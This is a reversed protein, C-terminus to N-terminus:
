RSFFVWGLLAALMVMRMWFFQTPKKKKFAHWGWALAGMAAFLLLVSLVAEPIDLNKGIARNVGENLPTGYLIFLHSVYIVLTEMAMVSVTRHIKGAPGRRALLDALVCLLALFLLLVGVRWVFFWPNTKWFNHEGFLDPAIMGLGLAAIMCVSAAAVLRGLLRDDQDHDFTRQVFFAAVIGACLFGGWPFIPFPSGTGANLYAGIAPHIASLDIRHVWPALLVIAAGAASIAAVFPGRKKIAWVLLEAFLLTIGIVQLADVKLFNTLARESAGDLAAMSFSPLHILYGLGIIMLYRELRRLLPKGWHTHDDWRRFTTIGFALGSAFMFTPATYGHIYNHWRYWKADRISEEVVVYFTHGQVMLMVAAFRFFDLADWRRTSTVTAADAPTSTRARTLSAAKGTAM